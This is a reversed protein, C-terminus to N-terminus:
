EHIQFLNEARVILKPLHIIDEDAFLGSFSELGNSVYM